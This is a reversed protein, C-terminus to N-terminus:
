NSLLPAWAVFYQNLNGYWHGIVCVNGITRLQLKVGRHPPLSYRWGQEEKPAAVYSKGTHTM